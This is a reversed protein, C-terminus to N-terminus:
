LYKGNDSDETANKMENLCDLEKQFIEAIKQYCSLLETTNIILGDVALKKTKEFEQGIGAKVEWLNSLTESEALEMLEKEYTSFMQLQTRMKLNAKVEM